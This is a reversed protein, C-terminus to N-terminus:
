TPCTSSCGCRTCERMHEKWQDLSFDGNANASRYLETLDPLESRFVSAAFVVGVREPDLTAEDLKADSWALEAAAFGLQTERCMVKLSKRPKVYQKPEFDPVEGGIPLPFNAEVLTPLRGSAVRAGSSRRGFPM